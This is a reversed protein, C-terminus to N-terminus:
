PTWSYRLFWNTVVNTMDLYDRFLHIKLNYPQDLAINLTIYTREKRHTFVHESIPDHYHEFAPAYRLCRGSSRQTQQKKLM